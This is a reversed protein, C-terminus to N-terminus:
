QMLGALYKILDVSYQMLGALYKMLDVSYQLEVHFWKLLGVSNQLLDVLEWLLRKESWVLRCKAKGKNWSHM